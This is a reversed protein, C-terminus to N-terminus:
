GTDCAPFLLTSLDFRTYIDAVIAFDALFVRIIHYVVMLVLVPVVVLVLLRAVLVLKRKCGGGGVVSCHALYM